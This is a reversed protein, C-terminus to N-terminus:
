RGASRAEPDITRANMWADLSEGVYRIAREGLRVYGPGKGQCRWNRLTQISVNLRRAAENERIIEM